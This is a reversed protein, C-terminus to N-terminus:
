APVAVSCAPSAALQPEGGLRAAKSARLERVRRAIEARIRAPPRAPPRAHRRRCSRHRMRAGRKQLMKPPAAYFGCRGFAARGFPRQAINRVTLPRAAKWAGGAM